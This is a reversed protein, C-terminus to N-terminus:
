KLYISLGHCNAAEAFKDILTQMDDVNNAIIASNNADLLERVLTFQTRTNARLQSVNFM